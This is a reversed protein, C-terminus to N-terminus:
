SRARKGRAIRLGPHARRSRRKQLFALGAMGVLLMSLVEPEPVPTTVTGNGIGPSFEFTYGGANDFGAAFSFQPDLFATGSGAGLFNSVATMMTVGYLQNAVLSMATSLGHSGCAALSAFYCNGIDITQSAVTLSYGAQAAATAALSHFSAVSVPILSNSPGNIRVTYSLIAQLVDPCDTGSVSLTPLPGATISASGCAFSASAPFVFVNTSVNTNFTGTAGPLAAAAPQWALGLWLAVSLIRIASGTLASLLTHM